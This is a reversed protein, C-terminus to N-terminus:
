ENAEEDEIVKLIKEIAQYPKRICIEKIKEIVDGSYWVHEKGLRDTVWKM